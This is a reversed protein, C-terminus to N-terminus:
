GRKVEEVFVKSDEIRQWTFECGAYNSGPATQRGKCQGRKGETRFYESGCVPCVFQWGHHSWDLDSLKDDSM